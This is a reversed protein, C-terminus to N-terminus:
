ATATSFSLDMISDGVAHCGCYAATSSSSSVLTGSHASFRMFRIAPIVPSYSGTLVTLNHVTFKSIKLTLIKEDNTRVIFILYVFKVRM